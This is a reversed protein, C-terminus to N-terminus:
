RRSTSPMATKRVTNAFTQPDMHYREAMVALLSSTRVQKTDPAAIQNM